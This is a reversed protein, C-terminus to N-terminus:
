LGFSVGATGKDQTCDPYNDVRLAIVASPKLGKRRALRRIKAALHPALTLTTRWPQETNQEM